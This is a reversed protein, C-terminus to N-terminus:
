TLNPKIISATEETSFANFFFSYLTSTLFTSYKKTDTISDLRKLGYRCGFVSVSLSYPPCECVRVNVLLCVGVCNCVRDCVTVCEYEYVGVSGSERM